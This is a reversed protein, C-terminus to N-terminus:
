RCLSALKEAPRERPSSSVLKRAEFVQQLFSRGGEFPLGPDEAYVPDKQAEELPVLEFGREELLVLLRPLMEVQLAGVHLLMVHSVDRGYLQRADKRGKDIWAEAESLYSRELWEVGEADGKEACRAYPANYAWDWFDLTVQAVRYGREKLFAQVGRRREETNGERLFPYRFWHWDASGMLERLVPENRAVDESFAAVTSTDLDMHSFSHNALLHGSSRWLELFERTEPTDATKANIFGYTPPAKAARLAALISRAVDLRSTGPPLPGHVPLDDFTLAVKVRPAPTPEVPPLGCALAILIPAIV